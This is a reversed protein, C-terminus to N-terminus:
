HFELPALVTNVPDDGDRVRRVEWRVDLEIKYECTRKKTVHRLQGEVAPQLRKVAQQRWSPDQDEGSMIYRKNRGGSSDLWLPDPEHRLALAPGDVLGLVPRGEDVLGEDGLHD